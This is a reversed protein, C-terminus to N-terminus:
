AATEGQLALFSQHGVTCRKTKWERRDNMAVHQAARLTGLSSLIKKSARDLRFRVATDSHLQHACEAERGSAGAM